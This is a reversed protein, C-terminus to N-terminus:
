RSTIAILPATSTISSGSTQLAILENLFTLTTLTRDDEGADAQRLVYYHEGNFKTQAFTASSVPAASCSKYIRFFTLSQLTPQGRRERTRVYYPWDTRTECRNASAWRSRHTEGLYYIVSAVSRLLAKGQPIGQANNIPVGEPSALLTEVPKKIGQCVETTDLGVLKSERPRALTVDVLDTREGDRMVTELDQVKGLKGAGEKLFEAVAAAPLRVIKLKTEGTPQIPFRAVGNFTRVFSDYRSGTLEGDAAISPQGRNLVVGGNPCEIGGIILNLVLEPDWGQNLFFSITEPAVPKLMAETFEKDGLPVITVNPNISDNLTTSPSITLGGTGGILNALPITLSGSNRVGGTVTGMTSFQLPERASARLINTVLVEDRSKAFIRNYDVAVKSTTTTAACGSLTTGFALVAAAFARSRM